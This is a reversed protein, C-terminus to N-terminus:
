FISYFDPKFCIGIRLNMSYKNYELLNEGKGNYFRAYIYQNSKDSALFAASVVTNVNGFGKRPTLEASIWWKQNKSIYNGNFTVLGKYDILDKNEGGDVFPVWTKIGFSLRLNHFYKTSFSLYNWSRSDKGDKGNSEHEIQIFGAGKLVNNKTIYRGVGIGPNYNNDRFPSSEAYIDWFSRQSYTLYAFSNFPLVSKTLRQRISIQFMADATENNIKTNLPIGTIFYTDKYVGFAPLADVVKVIHEDDIDITERAYFPTEEFKKRYVEKISDDIVLPEKPNYQAVATSKLGSLTIIILFIMTAKM